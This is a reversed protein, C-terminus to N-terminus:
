DGAPAKIVSIRIRDGPASALLPVTFRRGGAEVETARGTIDTGLVLAEISDAGVADPDIGGGAIAHDAIVRGQDLRVMHDAIAQVEAMSHTVYVMPLRFETKLRAIFGLIEAKRAEDLAALPEDLLLLDPQSLLARGLAVRQREGGSLLTVRRDLLHGIALVDVVEDIGIRARGRARRFGYLLNARVPMHPFLRADQYVWGIRRRQAPVNVSSAIDVLARGDLSIHGADPRSTGGIAALTASKGAGSPGFLATVGDGPGEFAVDLTFNGLQKRIAVSLMEAGRGGGAM